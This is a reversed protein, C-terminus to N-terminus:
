RGAPPVQCAAVGTALSVSVASICGCTVIVGEPSATATHRCLVPARSTIRAARRDPM